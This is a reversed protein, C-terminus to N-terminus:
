EVFKLIRCGFIAASKSVIASEIGNKTKGVLVTNPFPLSPCNCDIAYVTLEDFSMKDINITKKCKKCIEM